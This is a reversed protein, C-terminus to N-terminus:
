PLHESAARGLRELARSCCARVQDRVHPPLEDDAHEALFHAHTALVTQVDEDEVRESLRDVVQALRRLALSSQRGAEVLPTLARDVVRAVAVGPAIVRPQGDRDVRVAPPDPRQVLHDLAAGLHDICSVATFPDNIAPSLARLAIQALQEFTFEVDQEATRNGGVILAARGRELVSDSIRDAPFGALVPQGALVYEGPHCLVRLVVDGTRAVEMLTGADIRQVYGSREASITREGTSLNTPPLEPQPQGIRSPYMRDISTQLERAVASIVHPAQMSSAAHHLFYILVGLSAIALPVAMTVSLRPADGGTESITRMVILCYLFTGIFTGLVFQNGPDRMFNRLLRPGFQSSALQLAVVLISFAVGAITVMTAAVTSLLDRAGGASRSYIWSSDALWEPLQGNDVRLMLLALAISLAAMIGPVFWLSGRLVGWLHALRGRIASIFFM